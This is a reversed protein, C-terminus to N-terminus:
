SGGNFLPDNILQTFKQQKSRSYKDVLQEGKTVSITSGERHFVFWDEIPIENILIPHHTTLMFQKGEGYELIFSPLFDIANAGLSNEYEDIMYIIDSPSCLVDTIILLVKLMGSSIDHLPTGKDVGKEKMLIMPADMGVNSLLHRSAKTVIFAEFSPFVVKFQESITALTRPFFKDLLFLTVHLSLAIGFLDRVKRIPKTAELREMLPYPYAQLASANQLDPGNFSRRMIQKLGDYANLVASEERYISICSSTPSIKPAERGDFVANKGYREFILKKSNDELNVLWLKESKIAIGNNNESNDQQVGEYNWTYADGKHEFELTWIGSHNQTDTVVMTAINFLMNLLRTKGAGSPGVFLNM